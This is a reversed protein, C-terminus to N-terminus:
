CKPFSFLSNGKTIPFLIVLLSYLLVSFMLINSVTLCSDTELFKTEPVCVWSILTRHLLM